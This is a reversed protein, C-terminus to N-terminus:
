NFERSRVENYLQHQALLTSLKNNKAYNFKLCADDYRSYNTRVYEGNGQIMVNPTVQLVDEQIYQSTRSILIEPCGNNLWGKL